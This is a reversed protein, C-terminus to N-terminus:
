NVLRGNDLVLNVTNGSGPILQNILWTNLGCHQFSGLSYEGVLNGGNVINFSEGNPTNANITVPSSTRCHPGAFLPLVGAKINSLRVHYKTTTELIQRRDPTRILAGTTAGDGVPEFHVDATVPIFGLVKFETRTGPLVMEGRFEGTGEAFSHMVAPGLAINSGTSAIYTTGNVDYDVDITAANAPMVLMATAALLAAFTGAGRRLNRLNFISSM